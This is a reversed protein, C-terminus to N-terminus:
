PPFSLARQESFRRVCRRGGDDRRSASTFAAVCLPPVSGGPRVLPALARALTVKLACRGDSLEVRWTEPIGASLGIEVCSLVQAARRTLAPAAALCALPHM